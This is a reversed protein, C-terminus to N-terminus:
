YPRTPESIHILSLYIGDGNDKLTHETKVELPNYDKDMVIPKGLIYNGDGVNISFIDGDYYSTDIDIKLDSCTFHSELESKFDSLSKNIFSTSNFSKKIFLSKIDNPIDKTNFFALFETDSNAAIGGVKKNNITFYKGSGGDDYFEMNYISCLSDIMVQSFEAFNVGKCYMVLADKLYVSSGCEYVKSINYSSLDASGFEEEDTYEGKTIFSDSIKAIHM